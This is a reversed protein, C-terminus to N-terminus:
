WFFNRPWVLVIRWLFLILVIYLAIPSLIKCICSKMTPTRFLETMTRSMILVWIIWHQCTQGLSRAATLANQKERAVRFCDIGRFYCIFLLWKVAQKLGVHLIQTNDRQIRTKHLEHIKEDFPTHGSVTGWSRAPVLDSLSQTLTFIPRM